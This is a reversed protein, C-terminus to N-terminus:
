RTFTVGTSVSAGGAGIAAVAAVYDGVGLNSFFAARDVTIDGNADPTPKGLDSAAIAIATAPNAGSAYIRLEYSTVSAHDVSATFAVRTPPAVAVVPTTVTIAVAASSASAGAADYAVARLQYTGAPVATWTFVYPAAPVTAILTTGSYFEVRTVANEPDSASASLLVVAPAIYTAGATPANLTVSPPNNAAAEVKVSIATSSTTAGTDDTAVAVLSYTGPAAPSWTVSYPNTTASGIPTSGAFFNVQAITGDADSAAATLVVDTGVTVTSGDTPTTLAVQPPQNAAADASTITVHDLVADTAARANHSTTALGVYVADAMPIADSGISTWTVGDDSSFAEIQSGTRVLRVWEPPVASASGATHVTNTDPDIRRDFATGRRPTAMAFAHRSGPTLDERIMVGSKAKSNTYAISAVRAVIEVDGTVPQYVFNFQDASGWIDVGAAHQTYVGQRYTASGEIAPSGIDVAKQGVPLSLTVVAVQSIAATAAAALNHSTVALGVYADTGLAVTASGITSWTAGDISSYATVKTGTRV